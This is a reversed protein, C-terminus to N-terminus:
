FSTLGICQLKPLRMPVGSIMASPLNDDFHFMLSSLELSNASAVVTGSACSKV